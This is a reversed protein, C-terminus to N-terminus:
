QSMIVRSIIKKTMIYEIDIRFKDFNEATAMEMRLPKLPMTFPSPWDIILEAPQMDTLGDGTSTVPPTNASVTVLRM